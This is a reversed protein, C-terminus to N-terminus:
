RERPDAELPHFRDVGPLICRHYQALCGIHDLSQGQGDTSEILVRTTAETGGNLIRVKFDVLELDEIHTAYRGLDKRLAIDIANVPGNESEGVSMLSTGDVDIKVTAESITVLDGIANYRREVLTRFGIVKFFEPVQGLTRRALLEFSADAAEYAWGEAERQKILSLLTALKPHDAPVDIGLRGLESLLNSKGAQDSVMVYRRNGVSEPSIHEYTAPDKLIASAHIGAKTAFASTGVYPAQRDPARNLMEDFARSTATIQKLGRPASAPRLATRM